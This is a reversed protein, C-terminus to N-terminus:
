STPAHGRKLFLPLNRGTPAQLFEQPFHQEDATELLLHLLAEAGTLQGSKEM